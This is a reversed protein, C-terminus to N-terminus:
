DIKHNPDGRVRLLFEPFKQVPSPAEHMVAFIDFIWFFLKVSLHGLPTKPVFSKNKACKVVKAEAKKMSIKELQRVM